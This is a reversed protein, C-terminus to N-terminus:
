RTILTFWLFTSLLKQMKGHKCFFRSVNKLFDSQVTKHIENNKM